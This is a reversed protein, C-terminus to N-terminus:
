NYYADPMIVVDVMQAVAPDTSNTFQQLVLVADTKGPQLTHDPLTHGRLILLANRGLAQDIDLRDSRRHLLEESGGLQGLKHILVVRQALQCM